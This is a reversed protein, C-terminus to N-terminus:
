KPNACTVHAWLSKTNGLSTTALAQLRYRVGPLLSYVRQSTQTGSCSASGYLRTSAAADAGTVAACTWTASSLTEGVNLNNVFDFTYVDNEGVDGPDFDRGIYM